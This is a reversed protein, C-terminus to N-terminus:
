KHKWTGFLATFSLPFVYFLILHYRVLVIPALLAFYFYVLVALLLIRFRRERIYLLFGAAYLLFCYQWGITCFFGIIPIAHIKTMTSFKVIWDFFGPLLSKHEAPGEIIVNYYDTMYDSEVYNRRTYGDPECFPYWAQYSLYNAANWYHEPYRLGVSIWLRLFGGLDEKCAEDNMGLKIPDAIQPAFFQFQEMSFYKKVAQMEAATFAKEGERVYVTSLQQIPLSFSETVPSPQAHLAVALTKDFGLALLLGLAMILCRKKLEKRMGLQLVFLGLYLLYFASRLHCTFVTLILFEAYRLMRRKRPEEQVHEVCFIEYFRILFFVATLSGFVTSNTCSSFLAVTPSFAFCVASAIMLWKKRTLRYLFVSEYALVAAGLIMHMLSFVAIGFQLDNFLRLGAKVTFRLLLAHVIPFRSQFDVEPYYAQVFEKSADYTFFGPFAALWYPLWAGMMGFFCLFYALPKCKAETKEQLPWACKESLVHWSLAVFFYLALAGLLVLGWNAPSTLPHRSEKQYEMGMVFAYSLLVSVIGGYLCAQKSLWIKKANEVM